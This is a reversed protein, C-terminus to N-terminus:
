GQHNVQKARQRRRQVILFVEILVLLSIVAYDAIAGAGWEVLEHLQIPGFLVWAWKLCGLAFLCVQYFPRTAKPPLLAMGVNFVLLLPLAMQALALLIGLYGYEFLSILSTTVAFAIFPHWGAEPSPALDAPLMLVVVIAVVMGWRMATEKVM